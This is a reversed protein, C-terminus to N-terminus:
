PRTGGNYMKRLYSVKNKWINVVDFHTIYDEIKNEEVNKLYGQKAHAVIKMAQEFTIWGDDFDSLALKIEKCANDAFKSCQQLATEKFLKRHEKETMKEVVTKTTLNGSIDDLKVDEERKYRITKTKKM